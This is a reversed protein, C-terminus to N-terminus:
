KGMVKVVTDILERAAQVPAATTKATIPVHAFEHLQDAADAAQSMLRAELAQVTPNPTPPAPQGEKQVQAKLKEAYGQVQAQYDMALRKFAIINAWGLPNQDKVDCNEACFQDITPLLIGYDEVWKYPAISPTYMPSGDDPDIMQQGNPGIKPTPPSQLLRRIDQLTKSRQAAGPSVSGPLGWYDNLLQQNATEDLWALAAPNEEGALKMLNECWARKQEPSMPLGEDTNAKVRVRGQMEDLHIYNNRFESGNEEIVQWLSGTYKMNAQLCEIANQGAHAHEDKISEYIDSLPGMAQDLMQQQGKATEVGPTTGVGAVQPPVGSIIQCYHWLRDLYNFLNPDMKFEFHYIANSLPQQVGEGITPTPNLVGGTLPKGSLERLDLRRPDALTVGTACREMYDDLINSVANFRENFPVVNDAVSPPYLGYGRHLKCVSWEKALVAKEINLVLPGYMSVKMGQPFLQQLKDRLVKNETGILKWYSNPQVWILSFTGRATFIDATVSFSSAYNMMRVLRNYSANDDTTSEVGETIEDAMEPFTARIEAAEAEWELALLPVDEIREKTPDTDIHLVSYVSWKPLGNPKKQTGTQGMVQSTEGEQFDQPRLPAGCQPCVMKGSQAIQSEDTDTGCNYCHFHDESLKATVPGYVPEDKFGTWIGDIVFRTWKFYVGYLFLYQAELQLLSRTENAEEIISIAEQAAKATTMDALNEANEPRIVVPPVARAIAASFNRRTTQTINNVYKELYSYDTQQNNQRYWAVADFYTRTIPDWGLIQKGKDYETNKLWNPMRMIRDTSWQTRLPHIIQSVIQDSEERTLGWSQERQEKTQRDPNQPTKEADPAQVTPRGNPASQGMMAQVPNFGSAMLVPSSAL